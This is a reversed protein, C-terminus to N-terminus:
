SYRTHHRRSGAQSITESPGRIIQMGLLSSAAGLDKMKFRQHLLNKVWQIQEKNAVICCDDVYVAVIVLGAESQHLFICPDAASQVFGKSMLYESLVKNWVRPAQKLGYLSRNLRLVADPRSSDIFGKTQKMYIEEKSIGNLFASDVDMQEIELDHAAAYALIARLSELRVVPAFTADFDVGPKQSTGM